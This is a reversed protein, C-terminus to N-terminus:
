PQAESCCWVPLTRCGQQPSAFGIGREDRFYHPIYDEYGANLWGNHSDAAFDWESGDCYYTDFAYDLRATDCPFGGDVDTATCVWTGAPCANEVSGWPTM